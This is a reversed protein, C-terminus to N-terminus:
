AAFHARLRDWLAPPVRHEDDIVLLPEIRLDDAYDSACVWMRLIDARGANIRAANAMASPNASMGAAAIAADAEAM